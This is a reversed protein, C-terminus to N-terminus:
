APRNMRRGGFRKAAYAFAQDLPLERTSNGVRIWLEPAAGKRPTLFVPRNSKGVRVLCIESGSVDPFSVELDATTAAGVVRTLYDRLWLEFRDADPRKMLSFDDDLGLVQGDDDVGVLLAGGNSNSLAAVTKAITLEMREDKSGTHKNFRASSKFEVDRSEGATLLEQATAEQPSVFLNAVLVVLITGITAALVGAIPHPELDHFNLFWTLAGVGVAAGVIGTLISAALGLSTRNGFLLRVGGGIVIGILLASILAAPLSMTGTHRVPDATPFGPNRSRAM